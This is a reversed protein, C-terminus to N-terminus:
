DSGARLIEKFIWNSLGLAVATILWGEMGFLEMTVLDPEMQLVIAHTLWMFGGNVIILAFITAFLKLPLTIIELLPRVFLNMLTLLSGIVVWAPFGGGVQFYQNAYTAMLGVLAITLVLRITIRLPLSM